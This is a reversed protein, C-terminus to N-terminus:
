GVEPRLPKLANGREKKLEKSRKKIEKLFNDLAEIDKELDEPNPRNIDLAMSTDHGIMWKSCNSMARDILIYDNTTIYVLKLQQTHVVASHRQITKNFLVEEISAEWTERLLSYFEAARQNYQEMDSPFLNKFENIKNKLYNKRKEVGLAHWPRGDTIRGSSDGARRVTQTYFCSQNVGAKDELALLFAIDHTFVIVQRKLSEQVLREAIKERYRHDLSSVPDDFVIPCEHDGLNLEAFFGSLAVVRQEGESLVESLRAKKNVKEQLEIQYKTQGGSGSSKLQLPLHYAGLAKLEKILDHSFRQTLGSSVVSNGKRTIATTTLKKMCEEYQHIKKLLALHDLIEKKREVFYKQAELEVKKKKLEDLAGPDANKEKQQAKTELEEMIKNLDENPSDGMESLDEINEDSIARVMEERRIEIVEIFKKLKSLKSVVNEDTIDRIEQEIDQYEDLSPIGPEKMTQSLNELAKKACDEKQKTSNEMFDKFRNMRVKADDSLPQMCLVCRGDEETHPFEKEPYGWQTSYEKAANYLLQWASEGIGPLPEKTLDKQIITVAKRAELLQAIAQRIKLEQGKSFTKEIKEIRRTIKAIKEKLNRLKQAQKIPNNVEAEAVDKRLKEFENQLAENWVAFEEITNVKTSYTLGDIIKGAETEGNIDKFDLKEVKPKEQELKDKLKRLLEVLDYFVHAGQPLYIVENNGDVIIEASKSDFVTIQSLLSEIDVEDMWTVEEDQGDNVSIKFTAKAVESSEKQFVNSLIKEKSGRAKCARKLVRAYGTKGAGNEGYIVSLGEHGFSLNSGDMIANVNYLNNIGKLTLKTSQGRVGPVDKDTLCSPIVTQQEDDNLGHSDKIMSLIDEEDQKTLEKQTLLRRVADSQWDLLDKKAWEIISEIVSM